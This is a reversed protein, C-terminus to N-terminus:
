RREVAKSQSLKLPEPLIRARLASLGGACPRYQEPLAQASEREKSVLLSERMELGERWDWIVTGPLRLNALQGSQLTSGGESRPKLVWVGSDPVLGGVVEVGAGPVFPTLDVLVNTWGAPPRM